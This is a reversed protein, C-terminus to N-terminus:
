FSGDQHEQILEIKVIELIGVAEALSIREAYVMVAARVEDRMQTLAANKFPMPHVDAM